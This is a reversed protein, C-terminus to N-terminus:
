KTYVVLPHTESRYYIKYVDKMGNPYVKFLQKTWVKYLYKHIFSKDKLFQWIIYSMTRADTNTSPSKWGLFQGVLLSVHRFWTTSGKAAIDILGMFGPSRGYWGFFCFKDPNNNNWYNKIRGLSLINLYPYVKKNMDVLQTTDYGTCKVTLGHERMDKAFRGNDFMASFTLIASSNDMSEFERDNPYRITLGKQVELSQFLEKIRNVESIEEAISTEDSALLCLLYQMTFLTGNQSTVGKGEVTDIQNLGFKDRYLHFDEYIKSM